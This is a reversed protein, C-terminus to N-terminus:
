VTALECRADAFARSKRLMGLRLRPLQVHKAAAAQEFYGGPQFAFAGIGHGSEIFRWASCAPCSKNAHAVRSSCLVEFHSQLPVFDSEGEREAFGRVARRTAKCREPAMGVALAGQERRRM